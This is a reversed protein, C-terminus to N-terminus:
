LHEGRTKHQEHEDHQHAAPQGHLEHLEHGHGHGHKGHEHDEHEGNDYEDYEHKHEHVPEQERLSAACRARPWCTRATAPDGADWVRRARTAFIPTFGPFRHPFANAATPRPPIVLISTIHYM